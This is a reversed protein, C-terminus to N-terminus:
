QPHTVGPHLPRSANTLPLREALAGLLAALEEPGAIAASAAAATESPAETNAVAVTLVMLGATERLARLAVFADVDTLDDGFYVIGHLRWRAVLEVLATGKNLGSAIRAEVVRRGPLVEILPHRIHEVARLVHAHAQESEPAGRYHVATSFPKHELRIGPRALLAQELVSRAQALAEVAEVSPEYRWTQGNDLRELGHSGVCAVQPLRVLRAVDAAPRGSVIAVVELRAALLGLSTRVSEPLCADEPRSVIPSLTGDFDSALGAPGDQLV